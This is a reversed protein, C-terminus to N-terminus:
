EESRHVEVIGIFSLSKMAERLSSRGVGLSKRLQSESPLKEGVKWIGKSIMSFIQMAIQEGLTSRVVPIFSNMAEGRPKFTWSCLLVEWFSSTARHQWFCMM